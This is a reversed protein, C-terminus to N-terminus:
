EAWTYARMWGVIVPNGVTGRFTHRPGLQMAMSQQFYRGALSGLRQQEADSMGSKGLARRQDSYRGFPHVVLIPDLPNYLCLVGESAALAHDLRGGPDLWDRDTAASILVARLRLSPSAERLATAEEGTDLTGGALLQLASLAVLGGLSHGVLSIRSGAPFGQLFRALHFGAVFALRAQDNADRLVNLHTLDSPWNFTVVIADPTLAGHAALNNRIRSGETVATPATYYSGHILFIVPRGEVAVHLDAADCRWMHGQSDFRSLQLSPGPEAGLVQPCTRTSLYWYEPPQAHAQGVLLVMEGFTGRGNPELKAINIRPCSVRLAAAM